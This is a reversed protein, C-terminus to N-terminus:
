RSKSNTPLYCNVIVFKDNGNEIVLGLLRNNDFDLIKALKGLSRRWLIAVGGYPRGIRLETSDFASVGYSTFEPHM